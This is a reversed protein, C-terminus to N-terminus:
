TPSTVSPSPANRPGACMNHGDLKNVGTNIGVYWRTVLTHPNGDATTVHLVVQAEHCGPQGINVPIVLSLENVLKQLPRSDLEERTTVGGAYLNFGAQYSLKGGRYFNGTSFEILYSKQHDFQGSSFVTRLEVDRIRVPQNFSPVPMVLLMPTRLHWQSQGVAFGQYDNMRLPASASGCSALAMAAAWMLPGGRRFGKRM